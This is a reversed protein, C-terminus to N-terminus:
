IRGACGDSSLSDLKLARPAKAPPKTTEALAVLPLFTGEAVYVGDAGPHLLIRGGEFVRRLAERARVADGQLVRELERARHLVDAPTPMIVPVLSEARLSKIAAREVAAQAQADALADRVPKAADGRAEGSAVFEVLHRVREEVRALRETRQRIESTATRAREGLSEAIRKRMYAIADPTFLAERLADFIREKATEERLSLRNDCTGRKRNDACRYYSASTGRMVTMPAGCKACVLIGSLPYVTTNGPARSVGAQSSYKARVGAARARVRDWLAQDVIRREPFERSQVEGPTRDVPTRRGTDSSRFWRRKRWRWRGVYAENALIDRVTSAVWGKRRHATKARPSPVRERNLQKAIAALSHGADYLEFVHRVVPATEPDVEIRYGIVKGNTGADPASKYGIPPSGTSYGALWRGEHGRKTKDSLEELYMDSLLSKITFAVKAGPAATDTGDAVGLLPVGAQKLRRFLTASDAMDRSIRSADEVVIADVVGADLAALLRKIGPRAMTAGSVAEDRYILREDVAGGQHAVYERCRRLQDDISAERQNDSSFRAYLAVRKAALRGTM